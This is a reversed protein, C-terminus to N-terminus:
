QANAFYIKVSFRYKGGDDYLWFVDITGKPQKRLFITVADLVDKPVESGGKTLYKIGDGQSVTYKRSSTMNPISPVNSVTFSSNTSDIGALNLNSDVHLLESAVNASPMLANTYGLENANHMHRGNIPIEPNLESFELGNPLRLIVVGM